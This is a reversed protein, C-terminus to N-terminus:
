VPAVATVEVEVRFEERTFGTVIILTSAPKVTVEALWADRVAMYIPFDERQTVFASIRIVDDRGAGAEALIADINAFCQEAQAKVGEPCSGDPALGLQGSTVIVRGGSPGMVGHNYAGFPAAIAAPTLPTKM